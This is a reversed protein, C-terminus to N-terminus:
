KILGNEPISKEYSGTPLLGGSNFFCGFNLLHMRRKEASGIYRFVEALQSRHPLDVCYSTQLEKMMLMWRMQLQTESREISLPPEKRQPEFNWTPPSPEKCILTYVTGPPFSIFLIQQISKMRESNLNYNTLMQLFINIVNVSFYIHLTNNIQKLSIM